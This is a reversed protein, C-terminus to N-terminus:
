SEKLFENITNYYDSSFFLSQNVTDNYIRKFFIITSKHNNETIIRRDIIVSNKETGLVWQKDSEFYIQNDVIKFYQNCTNKIQDFNRIMKLKLNYNENLYKYNVSIRYRDDIDNIKVFIYPSNYTTLPIQISNNM